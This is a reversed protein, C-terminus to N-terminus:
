FGEYSSVYVVSSVGGGTGQKRRPNCCARRIAVDNIKGRMRMRAVPIFEESAPNKREIVMMATPIPVISWDSL